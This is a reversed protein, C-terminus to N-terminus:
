HLVAGDGHIGKHTYLRTVIGADAYTAVNQADVTQVVALVVRDGQKIAQGACLCSKDSIASEVDINRLARRHHGKGTTAINQGRLVRCANGDLGDVDVRQCEVDVAHIVTGEDLFELVAQYESREVVPGHTLKAILVAFQDPLAFEVDLAFGLLADARRDGNGFGDARELWADIGGRRDFDRRELFLVIPVVPRSLPEDDGIQAKRGHDPFCAKVRRYTGQAIAICKIVDREFQDCAVVLYQGADGAVAVAHRHKIGTQHPTGTAVRWTDQHRTGAVVKGEDVEVACRDVQRIAANVTAFRGSRQVREQIGIATDIAGTFADM